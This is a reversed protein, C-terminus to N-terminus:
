WLLDGCFIRIGELGSAADCVKLAQEGFSSPGGEADSFESFVPDIRPVAINSTAACRECFTEGGKSHLNRM